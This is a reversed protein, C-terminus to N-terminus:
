GRSSGSGDVSPVTAELSDNARVAVVRAHSATELSANEIFGLANDRGLQFHELGKLAFKGKHILGFRQELRNVKHWDMFSVFYKISGLAGHFHELWVHGPFSRLRYVLFQFRQGLQDLRKTCGLPRM